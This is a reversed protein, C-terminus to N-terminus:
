GCDIYPTWCNPSEGVATRVRRLCAARAQEVKPQASTERRQWSQLHSLMIRSFLDDPVNELEPDVNPEVESRRLAFFEGSRPDTQRVADM